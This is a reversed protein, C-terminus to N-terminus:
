ERSILAWAMPTLFDVPRRRTYFFDTPEQCLRADLARAAFRM